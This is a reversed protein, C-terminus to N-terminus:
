RKRIEECKKAQLEHLIDKYAVRRGHKKAYWKELTLRQEHQVNDNELLYPKM